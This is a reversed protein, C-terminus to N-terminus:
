SRPFPTRMHIAQTQEFRHGSVFRSLLFDPMVDHKLRQLVKEAAYNFVTSTVCPCILWLVRHGGSLMEGANDAFRVAIEVAKRTTQDLNVYKPSLKSALFDQYIKQAAADLEAISQWVLIV